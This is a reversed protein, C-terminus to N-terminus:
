QTLGKLSAAFRDAAALVGDSATELDTAVNTTQRVVLDSEIRNMVSAARSAFQHVIEVHVPLESSLTILKKQFQPVESMLDAALFFSKLATASGLKASTTLDEIAFTDGLRGANHALRVVELVKGAQDDWSRRRDLLPQATEIQRSLIAWEADVVTATRKMIRASIADAADLRWEQMYSVIIPLVRDAQVARLGGRTGRSEGFEAELKPRVNQILERAQSQLDQWDRRRSLTNQTVQDIEQFIANLLDLPSNVDKVLGVIISAIILGEIYAIMQKSPPATLNAAVQDTWAEIRGAALRRFNDLRPDRSDPLGYALILGQLAAANSQDREVNVIASDHSQKTVSGAIAICRDAPLRSTFGSGLHVPTADLALNDLITNYILNRLDNTTRASLDVNRGTWNSLEEFSKRWKESLQYEIGYTPEKVTRPTETQAAPTRSGALARLSDLDLERLTVGFSDLAAQKVYTYSTDDSWYRFINELKPYDGPYLNRLEAAIVPPLPDSRHKFTVLAQDSPFSSPHQQMDAASQLLFRNIVERVVDRPDFRDASIAQVFRGAAAANLPYLGYGEPSQGFADHCEDRYLCRDCANPLWDVDRRNAWSSEIENPDLRSSNLYRGLFSLAEAPAVGDDGYEADLWYADDCRTRVTDLDDFHGETVAFIVRLNCM